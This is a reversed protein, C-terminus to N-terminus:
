AGCDLKLNKIATGTSSDLLKYGYASNSTLDNVITVNGYRFSSQNTGYQFTPPDISIYYPENAPIKDVNAKTYLEIYRYTKQETSEKIDDPFSNLSSGTTNSFSGSGLVTGAYNRITWTGIGIKVYSIDIGTVSFLLRVKFDVKPVVLTDATYTGRIIITLSVDSEGVTISKTYEEGGLIPTGFDWTGEFSAGNSLFITAKNRGNYTKFTYTGASANSLVIEGTEFSPEPFSTKPITAQASSGPSQVYLGRISISSVTTSSNIGLKSTNDTIKFLIRARPKAALESTLVLRNTSNTYKGSYSPTIKFLGTANVSSYTVCRKTDTTYAGPVIANADARTAIGNTAM